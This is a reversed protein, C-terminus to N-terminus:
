EMQFVAVNTGPLRPISRIHGVTSFYRFQIHKSLIEKLSTKTDTHERGTGVTASVTGTGFLTSWRSALGDSVHCPRSKTQNNIAWNTVIGTVVLLLQCGSTTRSSFDKGARFFDRGRFYGSRVKRNSFIGVPSEPEFFIGVPSELEFFIGVPSKRVKKQGVPSKGGSRVKMVDCLPVGFESYDTRCVVIAVGEVGVGGHVGGIDQVVATM